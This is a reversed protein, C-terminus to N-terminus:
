EHSKGKLTGLAAFLSDYGAYRVEGSSSRKISLLKNKQLNLADMADWLSKNEDIDVGDKKEDNIVQLYPWVDRLLVADLELQMRQASFFDTVFPNKPRFLLETATGAQVIKGKDMVLIRDGMEIAERVDHTVLVITKSKLVELQSFEKTINRRTIADLAGFPEDMLLLPPDAALARALGVRQQEGGSLQAPYLSLYEQPLHLQELLESVRKNIGAKPWKLLNPVIAINEAVTYHPFLGNHQLVYGISRRLIEPSFSNINKGSVFVSGSSVEVLRNIMRLTTTKGCGSTGLLVLNEGENVDFSINDVARTNGFDKVVHQVSIM